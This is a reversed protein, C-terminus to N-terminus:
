WCIFLHLMHTSLARRRRDWIVSALRCNNNYNTSGNRTACVSGVSVSENGCDGPQNAGNKILCLVRGASQYTPNFGKIDDAGRTRIHQTIPRWARLHVGYVCIWFCWSKEEWMTREGVGAGTILNCTKDIVPPQYIIHVLSTQKIKQLLVCITWNLKSFAINKLHHISKPNEHKFTKLIFHKNLFHLLM